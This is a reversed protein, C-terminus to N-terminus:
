WGFLHITLSTPRLSATLPDSSTVSLYTKSSCILRSEHCWSTARYYNHNKLKGFLSLSQGDYRGPYFVVLPTNGMVPQLNNLLSLTRPLPWATGIGTVIVLSM